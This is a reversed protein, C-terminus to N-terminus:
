SLGEVRNIKDLYRVLIINLRISNRCKVFFFKIRLRKIKNVKFITKIEDNVMNHYKIHKPIFNAWYFIM